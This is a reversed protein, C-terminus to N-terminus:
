YLYRYIDIDTDHSGTLFFDEFIGNYTTRSRITGKLLGLLHESKINELYFADHTARHVFKVNM